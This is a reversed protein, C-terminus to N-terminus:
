AIGCEIFFCGEKATSISLSNRQAQEAQEDAYANPQVSHRYQQAKYFFKGATVKKAKALLVREDFVDGVAKATRAMVPMHAFGIDGAQMAQISEPMRSLQEGVAVCDAAPNRTMKCNFTIWNIATDTEEDWCDLEAAAAALRSFDLELEDIHRRLLVMKATLEDLSATAPREAHIM